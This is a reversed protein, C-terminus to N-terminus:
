QFLSADIVIELETDSTLTIPMRGKSWKAPEGNVTVETVSGIREQWVRLDLKM